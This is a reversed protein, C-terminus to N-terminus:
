IKLFRINLGNENRQLQKFGNKKYFEELKPEDKYEVCVLKIATMDKILSCKYIAAKLIESGEVKYKYKDSRGIKAILICNFDTAVKSGALEKRNNNSADTFSFNEILLTFYGVIDGTHDDIILTTRANDENEQKIAKCHLFSEISKNMECSFSHLMTNLEEGDSEILDILPVPNLSIEM